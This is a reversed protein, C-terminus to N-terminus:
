SMPYSVTANLKSFLWGARFFPKKYIYIYICVCVYIYVCVYMCICIYIDICVCVCVYVYIYSYVCVCMYFLGSASSLLLTLVLDKVGLAWSQPSQALCPKVLVPRVTFKSFVKYLWVLKIVSAFCYFGREKWASPIWALAPCVVHNRLMKSEGWLSLFVAPASGGPLPYQRSGRLESSGVGRNWGRWCLRVGTCVCRASDWSRGKPFGNSFAFQAVLM